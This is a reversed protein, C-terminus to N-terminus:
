KLKKLDLESVHDTKFGAKEYLRKATNGVVVWLVIEKHNRELLTNISFSLLRRGYGKGQEEIDVAIADICNDEVASIAVIKGNDRLLFVNGSNESYWQRDEDNPKELESKLGVSKRMKHFATSRIRQVELYYKDEYGIVDCNDMPIKGDRYVMLESRFWYEYGRKYVFSKIIENEPYELVIKEVGSKEMKEELARLIMTGIGSNRRSPKIYLQIDTTKEAGMFVAAGTIENGDLSVLGCGEFKKLGLMLDKRVSKDEMMNEILNEYEKKYEKISIAM